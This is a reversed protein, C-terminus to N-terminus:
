AVQQGYPQRSNSQQPIMSPRTKARSRYSLPVVAEGAELMTLTPSSVVQGGGMYEGAKNDPKGIWEPGEEGVIGLTPKNAVGGDALKSLAAIGTGGGVASLGGALGGVVKDFTSPVQSAAIASNTAQNGSGAQTAYLSNQRGYSNQQNQNAQQQQNQYYGLGKDQQAIRQDAVTKARASDTNSVTTGQGFRTAQNGTNVAQRNNAIQGSRYANAQDKAQAIGTGTTANYQSQQRGQSNINAENGIAAQGGTAAAKMQADTTFQEAGQRNGEVTNRQQLAQEGLQQTGRLADEGMQLETGTRVNTLYQGGRTRLDEGQLKRGAAAESAAVRAKTMADGADGAQQRAMRSRYAGVGMPSAGAAAARRELDGVAAADKAGASIGASTVINQQEEPSMNYDKLFSDSTTVASPDIAGRVNNAMAGAVTGFEGKNANLQNESDQRYADSQRLRDPNVASNLGQQLDNVAQRQRGASVDQQQQMADPDFYDTYSGTDGKMGAQEEPTLYNSGFQDDTTMYGQLEGPRVIGSAEDANYGGRGQAMDEYASDLYGTYRGREDGAQGLAGGEQQFLQDGRQQNLARQNSAAKKPDTTNDFGVAM